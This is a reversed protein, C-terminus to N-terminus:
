ATGKTDPKINDIVAVKRAVFVPSVEAEVDFAEEHPGLGSAVHIRQETPCDDQGFRLEAYRAAAERPSQAEVETGDDFTHGHAPKWCTWISM